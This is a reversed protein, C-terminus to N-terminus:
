IDMRHQIIFHQVTTQIWQGLRLGKILSYSLWKVDEGEGNKSSERVHTPWHLAAYALFENSALKQKLLAALNSEHEDANIEKVPGNEFDECLLYTLCTRAIEGNGAQSKIQFKSLSGNLGSCSDTLYEKASQHILRVTATLDENNGKETRGETTKDDTQVIEIFSGCLALLEYSINQLPEVLALCRTNLEVALAIRLEALTLPKIALAVWTFIQRVLRTTEEDECMGDIKTLMREYFANLGSPLSRVRNALTKATIGHAKELDKIAMEAWLFMGEARDALVQRLSQEGEADLRLRRKLKGLRESVYTEVDKGSVSDIQISVAHEELCDIIYGETRSTLLL